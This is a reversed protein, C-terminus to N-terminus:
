GKRGKQHAAKELRGLGSGAGAELKMYVRGGAKRMQPMPMPPPAAGPLAGPHPGAMPAGGPLPGAGGPLPGPPPVVVPGAGPTPGSPKTAIVINVNTKADKHARGGHARAKRGGTPRTGGPNKPSFDRPVKGGKAHGEELRKLQNKDYLDDADPESTKEFDRPSDVAKGNKTVAGAGVFGEDARGGRNFGGVHKKGEREENATKVNRNILETALSRPKRDARAASGEGSVAGGSKYARRSLPRLGVKAETNLPEPPTWASADVRGSHPAALRAAKAKNAERYKQADHM